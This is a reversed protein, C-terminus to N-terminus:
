ANPPIVRLKQEYERAHAKAWMEADKKGIKSVFVERNGEKVRWWPISVRDGRAGRKASPM